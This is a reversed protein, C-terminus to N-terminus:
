RDEWDSLNEGFSRPHSSSPPRRQPARAVQEARTAKAALKAANKDAAWQTLFADAEEETEFGECTSKGTIM